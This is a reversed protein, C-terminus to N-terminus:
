MFLIPKTYKVNFFIVGMGVPGQAFDTHVSQRSTVMAKSQSM